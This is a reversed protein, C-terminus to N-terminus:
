PARMAAANASIPAAHSKMVCKMSSRGARRNANKKTAIPNPIPYTIWASPWGTMKPLRVSVRSQRM